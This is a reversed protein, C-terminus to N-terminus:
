SKKKIEQQQFMNRALISSRFWCYMKAADVSTFLKTGPSIQEDSLRIFDYRRLLQLIKGCKEQERVYECFVNMFDQINVSHRTKSLDPDIRPYILLGWLIVIAARTTSDWQHHPQNKSDMNPNSYLQRTSLFSSIEKATLM